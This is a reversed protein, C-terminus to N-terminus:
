VGSPQESLEGLEALREQASLLRASPDASQTLQFSPSGALSCAAAFFTPLLRPNISGAFSSLLGALISPEEIRTLGAQHGAAHAVLLSGAVEAWGPEPRVETLVHRQRSDNILPDGPQQLLERPVVLPRSVMGAVEFGQGSGRLIVIDDSLVSWGATLAAFAVTSKGMGSAGLLLWARQELSIAGAHLVFRGHPFLAHALVVQSLRDLADTLDFSAGGIWVEGGDVRASIGSRERAVVGEGEFWLEIQASRADAAREPIDPGHALYQITVTPSACSPPMGGLLRELAIARRGETASVLVAQDGIDVVREM